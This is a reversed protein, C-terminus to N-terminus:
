KFSIKIDVFEWQLEIMLINRKLNLRAYLKRLNWDWGKFIGSRINKIELINKEFANRTKAKVFRLLWYWFIQEFFIRWFQWSIFDRSGILLRNEAGSRESKQM